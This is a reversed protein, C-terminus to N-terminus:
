NIEKNKITKNYMRFGNPNTWIDKTMYKTVYKTVAEHSKIYDCKVFGTKRQWTAFTSNM